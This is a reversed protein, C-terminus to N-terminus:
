RDKGPEGAPAAVRLAEFARRADGSLTSPDLPSPPPPPPPAMRRMVPGLGVARATATIASRLRPSRVLLWDNAARPWVILVTRAANRVAPGVGQRRVTRVRESAWRLPATVRWSTSAQMARVQEQLAMVKESAPLELATQTARARELAEVRLAVKIMGERAMGASVHLDRVRDQWAREWREAMENLNVGHKAAFADDLAASSPGPKQAVIAYDPSVGALVDILAVPRDPPIGEHLRLTTTRAFGAYEAAFALLLPPLPRVHTPDMYFASSGVVLNEPNPTELVLLGGPALVRMAEAVLARLTEFPLHEAVHFASVVGASADAMGRLYELADGHRADLGAARCAALMGEDADVGQVQWGEGRALQLWEGRGCGLDVLRAPLDMERLAALFPLYVRHRQAIAERSGRHRDEFARYFDSM